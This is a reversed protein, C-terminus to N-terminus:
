KLALKVKEAVNMNRIRKWLAEEPVRNDPTSEDILDAPVAISDAGAVVQGAIASAEQGDDPSKRDPMSPQGTEFAPRNAWGTLGQPSGEGGQSRRRSEPRPTGPSGRLPLIGDRVIRPREDHQASGFRLTVSGGDARALPDGVRRVKGRGALGKRPPQESRRDRRGDDRGADHHRAEDGARAPHTQSQRRRGQVGHLRRDQVGNGVLR